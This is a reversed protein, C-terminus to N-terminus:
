YKSLSDLFKKYNNNALVEPNIPLDELKYEM